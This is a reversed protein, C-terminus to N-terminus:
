RRTLLVLGAVCLLLGALHSASLRERFVVVGLVGLLVILGANAVAAALSVNWGARYALLFGMEVGVIAVGVAVSTWNLARLGEGLPAREPRAAWLALSIPLAVAYAVATSLFPDISRPVSKQAGHYLVNSVLVLVLAGWFM